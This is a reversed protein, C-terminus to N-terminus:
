RIVLAFQQSPPINFISHLEIQQQLNNKYTNQYARTGIGSPSMRTDNQPPWKFSSSNRSIPPFLEALSMKRVETVSKRVSAGARSCRKWFQHRGFQSAGTNLKKYDVKTRPRINHNTTASTPPATGSPDPKNASTPTM